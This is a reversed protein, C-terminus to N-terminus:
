TGEFHGPDQLPELIVVRKYVGQTVGKLTPPVNNESTILTELDISNIWLSITSPPGSRLLHFKQLPRPILFHGQTLKKCLLGHPLSRAPVALFSPVWTGNPQSLNVKPRNNGTKEWCVKRVWKGQCLTPAGGDSGSIGAYLEARADM